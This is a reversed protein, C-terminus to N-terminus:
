STRRRLWGGIGAVGSAFLAFSSPEPTTAQQTVLDLHGYGGGGSGDNGDTYSLTGSSQWGNTGSTSQFDLTIDNGWACGQNDCVISGTLTGGPEIAGTFQYPPTQGSLDTGWFQVTGSDLNASYYQPCGLGCYATEQFNTVNANFQFSLDLAPDNYTMLTGATPEGPYYTVGGFVPFNGSYLDILNDDAHALTPSCALFTIALLTLIALSVTRRHM